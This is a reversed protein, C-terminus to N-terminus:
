ARGSGAIGHMPCSAPDGHVANRNYYRRKCDRLLVSLLLEHCMLPGRVSPLLCKIWTSCTSSYQQATTYQVLLVGEQGRPIMLDYCFLASVSWAWGVGFCRFVESGPKNSNKKREESFMSPSQM